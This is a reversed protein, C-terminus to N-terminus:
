GSADKRTKRSISKNIISSIMNKLVKLWHPGGVLLLLNNLVICHLLLVTQWVEILLKLSFIHCVWKFACSSSILAGLNGGHNALSRGM